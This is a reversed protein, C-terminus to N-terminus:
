PTERSKAWRNLFKMNMEVDDLRTVQTSSPKGWQKFLHELGANDAPWNKGTQSDFIHPKGDVIEWNVSHGFSQTKTPNKVSKKTINMLFEGRSGDPHSSLAKSVSEISGDTDISKIHKFSGLATDSRARGKIVNIVSLPNAIDKRKGMATSRGIADQGWAVMSATADVDFGRRNLEYAFTARRCNITGGSGRVKYLPNIRQSIEGLEEVTKKGMLSKDMKFAAGHEAMNKAFRLTAAKNELAYDAAIYAAGGAVLIGGVIATGILVRRLAKHQESNKAVPGNNTLDSMRPNSGTKSGSITKRRPNAPNTASGPRRPKTPDENIVGWKMGMVGYHALFNNVGVEDM